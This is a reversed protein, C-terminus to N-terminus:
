GKKKKHQVVKGHKVNHEVHVTTRFVKHMKKVTRDAKKVAEWEGVSIPPKKSPKWGAYQRALKKPLAYPDGNQDRVVVYGRIPSRYTTRLNHM